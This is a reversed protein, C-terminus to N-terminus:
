KKILNEIEKLRLTTISDMHYLILSDKQMSCISDLDINLQKIGRQFLTDVTNKFAAEQEATDDICSTGFISVLM